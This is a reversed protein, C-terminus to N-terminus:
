PVMFECDMLNATNSVTPVLPCIVRPLRYAPRWNSTSSRSLPSIKNRGTCITRSLAAFLVVLVSGSNSITPISRTRSCIILRNAASYEALHFEVRIWSEEPKRGIRMKCRGKARLTWWWLTFAVPEFASSEDTWLVRDKAIESSGTRCHVGFERTQAGREIESSGTRCHVNQVNRAPRHRNESSGTRCHVCGPVASEPLRTESSGTRCHVGSPLMLSVWSNESSGTRCHVPLDVELVNRYM